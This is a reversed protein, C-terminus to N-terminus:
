SGLWRLWVDGRLWRKVAVDFVSCMHIADNSVDGALLQKVSSSGWASSDCCGPSLLITCWMDVAGPSLLSSVVSCADKVFCLCTDPLPHRIPQVGHVCCLRLWVTMFDGRGRSPRVCAGPVVAPGGKCTKEVFACHAFLMKLSCESARTHWALFSSTPTCGCNVPVSKRTQSCGKVTQPMPVDLCVLFRHSLFLCQFQVLEEGAQPVRLVWRPFPFTLSRSWPESALLDLFLFKPAKVLEVEDRLVLVPPPHPDLLLGGTASRVRRKVPRQLVGDQSIVYDEPSGSPVGM